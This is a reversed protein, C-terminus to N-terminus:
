NKNSFGYILGLSVVNVRWATLYSHVIVRAAAFAELPAPKCWETKTQSDGMDPLLVLQEAELQLINKNETEGLTFWKDFLCGSMFISSTGSSVNGMM